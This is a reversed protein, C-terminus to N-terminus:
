TESLSALATAIRAALRHSVAQKTLTPWAESGNADIVIVTNRDGGFVGSDPSVDNAVIWDCRKRARKAVAKAEVDGTEAAFGIVLGPRGEPRQAITALIDPNEVLTLAPAAGDQKKIKSSAVEAARWDAVAAAFVAVDAPLAKLCAELM